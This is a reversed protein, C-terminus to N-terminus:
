GAKSLISIVITALHFILHNHIPSNLTQRTEHECPSEVAVVSTTSVSEILVGGEGSLVVVGIGTDAVIYEIINENKHASIDVSGEPTFKIANDILNSLVQVIKDEDAYVYVGEEPYEVRLELDKEKAKSEFSSAVTRVMSAVDVKTKKLEVKGAEIKSIDLLSNIIRALRDVNKKATSLTRSQEKNIDGQVEDLILSIAEKTISLPTRIEHSVIALFDDKIKGM